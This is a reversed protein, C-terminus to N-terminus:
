RNIPDFPPQANYPTLEAKKMVKQTDYLMLGSFIALGGYMSISYLGAGIATTPPLFMGAPVRWNNIYVFYTAAKKFELNYAGRESM